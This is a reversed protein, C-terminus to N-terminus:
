NNLQLNIPSPLDKKIQSETIACIDFSGNLGGLLINFDNFNKTFSCVNMHFSFARGKLVKTLNKFYDTARYKCNPM